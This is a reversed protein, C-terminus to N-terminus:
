GKEMVVGVGGEGAFGLLGVPNEKKGESKLRMRLTEYRKTWYSLFTQLTPTAHPTYFFHLV